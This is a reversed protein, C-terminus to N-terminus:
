FPSHSGKTQHEMGGLGGQHNKSIDDSYRLYPRAMSMSARSNRNSMPTIMAPLVRERRFAFYLGDNLFFHCLPSITPHM